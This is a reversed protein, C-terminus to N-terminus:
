MKGEKIEWKKRDTLGGGWTVWVESEPESRPKEPFSVSAAVMHNHDHKVKKNKKRNKKKQRVLADGVIKGKNKEGRGQGGNTPASM